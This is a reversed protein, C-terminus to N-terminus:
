TAMALYTQDLLNGRELAPVQEVARNSTVAHKINRPSPQPLHALDQRMMRTLNNEHAVQHGSKLIVLVSMYLSVQIYELSQTPTDHAPSYIYLNCEVATLDSCHSTLGLGM